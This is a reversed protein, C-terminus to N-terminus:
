KEFVLPCWIRLREAHSSIRASWGGGGSPVTHIQEDAPFGLQRLRQAQEECPPFPRDDLIDTNVTQTLPWLGDKGHRNGDM